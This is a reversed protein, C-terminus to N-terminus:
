RQVNRGGTAPDHQHPRSEKAGSQPACDPEGRYKLVPAPFGGVVAYPPDDRTRVAGAEVTANRGAMGGPLIIVRYGIWVNDGIVAPKRIAGEYTERTYKHNQTIIVVDPGMM